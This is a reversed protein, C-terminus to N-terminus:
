AAAVKSPSSPCPNTGVYPTIGIMDGAVFTCDIQIKNGTNLNGLYSCGEKEKGNVTVNLKSVVVNSALPNTSAAVAVRTVNVKGEAVSPADITLSVGSCDTAQNAKIASKSIIGSVVQWVIIIAALVLLIILVTTILESQAKKSKM